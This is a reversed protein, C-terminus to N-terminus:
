VDADLVEGTEADVISRHWACMNCSGYHHCDHPEETFQFDEDFVNGMIGEQSHNLIFRWCYYVDGNPAVPYGMSRVTYGYSTKCFVHREPVGKYQSMFRNKFVPIEGSKGYFRYEGNYWGLYPHSTVIEIGHKEKAHKADELIAEKIPPYSPAHFNSIKFNAKLWKANECFEDIDIQGHHYSVYFNLAGCDKRILKYEKLALTSCNTYITTWVGVINNVIEATGKYVGPEGTGIIVTLKGAPEVRNVLNIWKSPEVELKAYENARYLDEQYKTLGCYECNFNCRFTHCMRMVRFPWILKKM